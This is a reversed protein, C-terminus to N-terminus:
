FIEATSKATIARDHWAQLEEIDESSLIMARQEDTVELKRLKLVRLVGERGSAAAEARGQALGDAYAKKGWESIYFKGAMLEELRKRLRDTVLGLGYEYYDGGDDGLMTMGKAFAEVVGPIDGHFALVLDARAPDKAMQEADTIVPIRAPYLPLPTHVYVPLSTKLPRSYYDCTAEDPCIVLVHVPCGLLVWLEAAYKALKRRKDELREQQVEVIIALLPAYRPGVVVVADCDFDTSPRDNFKSPALWVPMGVPIPEDLYDRAITVAIEPDHEVLHTIADHWPSPM